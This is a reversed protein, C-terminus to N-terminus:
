AERSHTRIALTCRAVAIPVADQDILDINWVHVARGRRVPTATARLTGDTRGRLHSINLEIGVAYQSSPDCNAYAGLSAATEALVASAGGHLLGMPQHVKPGIPMTLIVRDPGVEVIDIDLLSLMTHPPTIM